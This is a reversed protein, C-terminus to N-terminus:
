SEEEERLEKTIEDKIEQKMEEWQKEELWSNLLTTGLGLVTLVVSGMKLSFM